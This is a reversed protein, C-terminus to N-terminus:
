GLPGDLDTYERFRVVKGDRLTFVHTAGYGSAGGDRRAGDARVVGVVQEANAESVSEIDLALAGTSIAEIEMDPREGMRMVSGKGFQKEIQSVAMDLAKDREM